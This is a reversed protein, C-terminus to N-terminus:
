RRTREIAAEGVAKPIIKVAVEQELLRDEALWVEGQGGRGLRRRPRLRGPLRPVAPPESLFGPQVTFIESKREDHM